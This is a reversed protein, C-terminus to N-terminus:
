AANAKKPNKASQFVQAPLAGTVTKAIAEPMNRPEEPIGQYWMQADDIHSYALTESYSSLANLIRLEPPSPAQGANVGSGVFLTTLRAKTEKANQQGMFDAYLQPSLAYGGIEVAQGNALQGSAGPKRLGGSDQQTFDQTTAAIRVFQRMVRQLSEQPAIAFVQDIDPIDAAVDAALLAGFRFGILTISQAGAAQALACVDAVDQRWHDLRAEGFEGASDGTGFYDISVSPVAKAALADQTLSLLRRCRNMEEAFPPLLVVARKGRKAITKWPGNATLLRADGGARYFLISKEDRKLIRKAADLHKKM